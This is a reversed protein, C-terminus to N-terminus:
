AKCEYKAQTHSLTASPTSWKVSNDRVTINSGNVTRLLHGRPNVFTCKEVLIDRLADGSPEVRRGAAKNEAVRRALAANAIPIDPEPDYAPPIAIEAMIQATAGRESRVDLCNEFRCNRVVINACGIGECWVNYTYCSLLFLPRGVMPGFTCGDFTANNGNYLGRSWPSDHFRCDKFLFNETAFDADTLVFLM